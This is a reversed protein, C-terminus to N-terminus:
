IESSKLESFNIENKSAKETAETSLVEIKM